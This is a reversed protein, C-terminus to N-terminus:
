FNQRVKKSKRSARFNLFVVVLVMILFIMACLARIENPLAKRTCDYIYTSLTMFSSDRTFQTIIYDDLSLTVALMFGSFIGPLIDPLVVKFLARAPTAGLDLAAEYLNPDMQKLRPTVSLVVFPTALVMHGLLLTGFNLKGRGLVFVFTLALSIATVVEANVVPIQSLGNLVKQTRKKSYFIGVAGVTGLVTSCVASTFALLVTNWLANMLERNDFVKGYLKFTFGNWMGLVTTDTFSFIILFLIPAYMFALVLFVYGGAFFKKVM